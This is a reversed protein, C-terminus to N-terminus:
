PRVRLAAEASDLHIVHEPRTFGHRVALDSLREPSRLAELEAALVRHEEQLANEREIAEGLAYGLHIIRVRLATLLLAALLLGAILGPRIRRRPAASFRSLDCGVLGQRQIRSM